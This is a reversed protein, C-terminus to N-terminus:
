AAASAASVAASAFVHARWTAAAAALKAETVGRTFADIFETVVTVAPRPPLSYSSLRLSACLQADPKEQVQAAVAHATRSGDMLHFSHRPFSM